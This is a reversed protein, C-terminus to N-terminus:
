YGPPLNSWGDDSRGMAFRFVPSYLLDINRFGFDTSSYVKEFNVDNFDFSSVRQGDPAVRYQQVWLNTAITPGGGNAGPALYRNRVIIKEPFLSFEVKESERAYGESTNYKTRATIDTFYHLRTEFSLLDVERNDGISGGSGVKVFNNYGWPNDLAGPTSTVGGFDDIDRSKTAEYNASFKFATDPVWHSLLMPDKGAGKVEVFWHDFVVESFDGRGATFFVVPAGDVRWERYYDLSNSAMYHTSKAYLSMTSNGEKSYLNLGELSSPLTANAVVDLRSFDTRGERHNVVVYAYSDPAPRLIFEEIRVRRGFADVAARGLQYQEEKQGDAAKEQFGERRDDQRKEVFIERRVRERHGVAGQMLDKPMMEPPRPAQGRPILVTQGKLVEIEKALGALDRYNVAGELVSLRSSTDESVDMDFTTGRVAAVAVPTRVEFKNAPRLKQVFARIRGVLVKFQTDKGNESVSEITTKPQVYVTHGGKTRVRALSNAGTRLSDGPEVRGKGRLAAWRASQAKKVYATGRTVRVEAGYLATSAVIFAIALSIQKM